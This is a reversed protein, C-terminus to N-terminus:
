TAHSWTGHLSGNLNNQARGSIHKIIPIHKVLDRAAKRAVDSEDSEDVKRSREKEAQYGASNMYQRWHELLTHISGPPHQLLGLALQFSLCTNRVEAKFAGRKYERLKRKKDRRNGEEEENKAIKACTKPHLQVDNKWEDLCKKFDYETLPNQEYWDIWETQTYGDRAATPQAVGRSQALRTVYDRRRRIPEALAAVVQEPDRVIADNFYIHTMLNQAAQQIPPDHVSRQESTEAASATEEIKEVLQTVEQAVDHNPRFQEAPDPNDTPHAYSSIATPQTVGSGSYMAPHRDVPFICQVAVMDQTVEELLEAADRLPMPFGRLPMPLVGLGLALIGEVIDGLTEDNWSRGHDTLRPLIAKLVMAYVANGPDFTNGLVPCVWQTPHLNTVARIAGEHSITKRYQAPLKNMWFDVLDLLQQDKAQARQLSRQVKQVLAAGYEATKAAMSQLSHWAKSPKARCDKCGSAHSQLPKKTEWQTRAWMKRPM